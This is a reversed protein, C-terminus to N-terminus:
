IGKPLLWGVGDIRDIDGKSIKVSKLQPFNVFYENLYKDLEDRFNGTGRQEKKIRRINKLLEIELSTNELILGNISEGTCHINDLDKKEIRTNGLGLYRDGWVNGSKRNAVFNLEIPEIHHLQPGHHEIVLGCCVDMKFSPITGISGDIYIKNAYEPFIEPKVYEKKEGFCFSTQVSKFKIDKPLEKIIDIDLGMNSKTSIEGNSGIEFFKDVDDVTLRSMIEHNILNDFIWQKIFALKGSRTSTLISEYLSKM